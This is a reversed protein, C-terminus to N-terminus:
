LTEIFSLLWPHFWHLTILSLTAWYIAHLLDTHGHLNLFGHSYDWLRRRMILISVHGCLYEYISFLMGLFIWQLWLPWALLMPGIAFLMVAALGYSPTFPLVSFGGRVWRRETLSRYSSDIVWGVLGYFLFLFIYDSM